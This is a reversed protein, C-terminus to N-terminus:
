DVKKLKRLLYFREQNGQSGKVASDMKGAVLYYRKVWAEFDHLLQRRIKENKVVGKHKLMGRAEFQPKFLAVVGVKAPINQALYPLIQRLSIFSVDITIVDISDTPLFERIDTQEHLEIRPDDRLKAHIQSSGVDVAIVKKAGHQLAYDTFGGTSSGVDLVVNDYFDVKLVKAVSELKYAARSVYRTQENAEIRQEDGVMQGPKTAITGDVKVLGLRVLNAAQSRTSALGRIVLVSDLRNKTTM